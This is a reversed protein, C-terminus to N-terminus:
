MLFGLTICYDNRSMFQTKFWGSATNYVTCVTYHVIGIVNGTYDCCGRITCISKICMQLSATKHLVVSAIM